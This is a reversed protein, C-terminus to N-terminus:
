EVAANMYSARETDRGRMLRPMPERSRKLCAAYQNEVRGAYWRAILGFESGDDRWWEVYYGGGDIGITIETKNAM